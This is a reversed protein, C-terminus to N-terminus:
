QNFKFIVNQCPITLTHRLTEFRVFSNDFLAPILRCKLITLVKSHIFISCLDDKMKMTYNQKESGKKRPHMTNSNVNNVAFTATWCDILNVKNTHTDTQRDTEVKSIRRKFPEDLWDSCLKFSVLWDSSLIKDATDASM